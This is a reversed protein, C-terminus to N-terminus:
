YFVHLQAAWRNSRFNDTDMIRYEPRLEIYPLLFVQAGLVLQKTYEEKAGITSTGTEARACLLLPEMVQYMAELSYTNTQRINKKDSHAYDMTLSLEDTLGVGIFGNIMSFDDNMFYSAGIMTNVSNDMFRPLYVARAAVSPANKGSVLSIPNSTGLSDTLYIKVESLNKSGFVGASFTFEHLADYTIEAGYEGYLPPIISSVGTNNTGDASPSQRTLKTHDDYRVGMTPQIMGVQLQPLNLAPQFIVSAMWPQQGPYKTTNGSGFLRPHGINVMGEAVLWDTPAAQVYVCAQMPFIKREADESAHSRAMQLRFDMGVTVKGDLLTNQKPDLDYLWGLGISEPKILSVEAHSYWGLDSRLGGGQPVTHCSICKNGTILSFQPLAQSERAALCSLLCAAVWIGSIRM